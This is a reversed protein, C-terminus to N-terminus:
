FKKKFNPFFSIVEDQNLLFGSYVYKVLFDRLKFNVHIQSHPNKQPCSLEPWINNTTM